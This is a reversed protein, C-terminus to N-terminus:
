DNLYDRLLAWVNTKMAYISKSFQSPWRLIVPMGVEVNRGMTEVYIQYIGSRTYGQKLLELCSKTKRTGLIQHFSVNLSIYIYICSVLSYSHM